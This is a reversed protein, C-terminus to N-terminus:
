PRRELHPPLLGDIAALLEASRFPKAISVNAGFLKADRLVDYDNAAHSGSIAIVPVDSAERICRITEIGEQDPMVIDTIVLDPGNAQLAEVGSKGDAAEAVTHGAERLLRGVTRRVSADDDILLIRAM